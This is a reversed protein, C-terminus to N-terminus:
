SICLEFGLHTCARGLVIAGLPECGDEWSTM